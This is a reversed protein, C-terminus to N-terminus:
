ATGARRRDRMGFRAPTEGMFDVEILVAPEDGVVWGDHGPEIAVVQPAAFETTTGDAYRVAVRGRAIFGVHAHMCFDTGVKSKMHTSWRFGPQYIVRKIRGSGAAAVDVQVGGVVRTDAGPMPAFLPDSREAMLAEVHIVM